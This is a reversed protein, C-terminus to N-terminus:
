WQKIIKKVVDTVFGLCGWKGEWRSNKLFFGRVLWKTLKAWWQGFIAKLQWTSWNWLAVKHILLQFM